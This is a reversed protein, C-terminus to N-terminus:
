IKHLKFKRLTLVNESRFKHVSMIVDFLRIIM